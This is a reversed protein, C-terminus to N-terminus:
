GRGEMKQCGGGGSTEVRFIFDDCGGVDGVWGKGAAMGGGQLVLEEEQWQGKGGSIGEGGIRM